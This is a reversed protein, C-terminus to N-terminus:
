ASHELLRAARNYGIRLHRQILSVSGRGHQTVIAVADKYLADSEISCDLPLTAAQQVLDAQQDHEGGLAAVLATLMKNLEGTLSAMPSSAPPSSTKSDILLM